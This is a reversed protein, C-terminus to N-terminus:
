PSFTVQTREEKTRGEHKPALLIDVNKNAEMRALHRFMCGRTLISESSEMNTEVKHTSEELVMEDQNSHTLEYYELAIIRSKEMENLQECSESKLFISKDDIKSCFNEIISSFMDVDFWENAKELMVRGIEHNEEKINPHIDVVMGQFLQEMNEGQELQSIDEHLIIEESRSIPNEEHTREHFLVKNLHIEDKQQRFSSLPTLVLMTDEVEDLFGLLDDLM